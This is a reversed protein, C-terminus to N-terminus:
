VIVHKITGQPGTALAGISALLVLGSVLLSALLRRSVM